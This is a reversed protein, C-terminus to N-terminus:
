VQMAFAAELRLGRFESCYIGLCWIGIGLGGLAWDGLGMGWIGLSM